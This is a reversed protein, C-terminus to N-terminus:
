SGGRLLPALTNEVITQWHYQILSERIVSDKYNDLNLYIKELSDCFSEANDQCIFGNTNSILKRNEYTDTAITILGSLAYEVIKTSPQIEFYPTQPVFCIGITADELYSQLEEHNKIGHFTVINDLEYEEVKYRIEEEDKEDPSFGVIDYKLSVKGVYKKYFLSFGDVTKGIHRKQLIGVYLLHIKNDFVRPCGYLIEAGLPLFVTKSIPLHLM